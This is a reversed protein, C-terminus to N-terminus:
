LVLQQGQIKHSYIPKSRHPRGAAHRSGKRRTSGPDKTGMQGIFKVLGLSVDGERLFGAETQFLIAKKSM